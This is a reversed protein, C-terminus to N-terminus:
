GARCAPRCGSRHSRRSRVPRPPCGPPRGRGRAAPSMPATPPRGSGPWSPGPSSGGGGRRRFRDRADRGPGSRAPHRHAQGRPQCGPLPLLPQVVPTDPWGPQRHPHDAAGAAARSWACATRPRSPRPISGWTARAPMSACPGTATASDPPLTSAASGRSTPAPRTAADSRSGWSTPPAVFGRQARGRRSHGLGGLGPGVGAHGRRRLHPPWCGAPRAAIAARGPPGPHRGPRQGPRAQPEPGAATPDQTACGALPLLLVLALRQIM